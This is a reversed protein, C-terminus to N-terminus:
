QSDGLHLTTEVGGPCQRANLKSEGYLRDALVLEFKFGMALLQRIMTAAIQPKSQYEGTTKLRERPKYVEFCLPVIM